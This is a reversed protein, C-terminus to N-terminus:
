YMRKKIRPMKKAPEIDGVENEQYISSDGNSWVGWKTFDRQQQTLLEDMVKRAHLKQLKKVEEDRKRQKEREILRKQRHEEAKIAMIRKQEAEQAAKIKAAKQEAEHKKPDLIGHDKKMHDLYQAKYWFDRMCQCCLLTEDEEEVSDDWTEKVEFPDKPEASKTRDKGDVEGDIVVEDDIVEAEKEKGIDKEKKDDEEILKKLKAYEEQM